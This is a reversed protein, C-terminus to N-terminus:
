IYYKIADYPTVMWINDIFNSFNPMKTQTGENTEVKNINLEDSKNEMTQSNCQCHILLTKM